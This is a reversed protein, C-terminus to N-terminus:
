GRTLFTTFQALLGQEQELGIKIRQEKDMGLIEALPRLMQIKMKETNEENLFNILFTTVLRRDILNEERQINNQVKDLIAEAEKRIIESEEIRHLVISKEENLEKTKIDLEQTTTEIQNKMQSIKFKKKSIKSTLIESERTLEEIRVTASNLQKQLNKVTEQLKEIGNQYEKISIQAIKLNKTDNLLNNIYDQLGNIQQTYSEIIKSKETSFSDNQEKLKNEYFSKTERAKQQSELLKETISTKEESITNLFKDKEQLSVQNIKLKAKLDANEDEILNVFLYTKEFKKKEDIFENEITTKEESLRKNLLSIKEFEAKLDEFSQLTEKISNLEEEKKSIIKKSSDLSKTLDAYKKTLELNERKSQNLINEAGTSIEKYEQVRHISEDIIYLIADKIGDLTKVQALDFKGKLSSYIKNINETIFMNETFIFEQIDEMGLNEARIQPISIGILQCSEKLYGYCKQINEHTTKKYNLLGEVEKGLKETKEQLDFQCTRLKIELKAYDSNKKDLNKQLDENAKELGQLLTDLNHKKKQEDLYKGNLEELNELLQASDEMGIVIKFNILKSSDEPVPQYSQKLSKLAQEYAALDQSKSELQKKLSDRECKLKELESELNKEPKPEENLETALDKLGKTAANLIGGKLGGLTSWLNSM